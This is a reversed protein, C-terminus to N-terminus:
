PAHAEDITPLKAADIDAEVAEKVVTDLGEGLTPPKVDEVAVEVVEDCSGTEKEAEVVKKMQAISDQMDVRTGLSNWEAGWKM